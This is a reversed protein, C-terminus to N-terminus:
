PRPFGLQHPSFSPKTQSGLYCLDLLAPLRLVGTRLIALIDHEFASPTGPGDQVGFDHSFYGSLLAFTCLSAGLVAALRLLPWFKAVNATSAPSRHLALFLTTESRFLMEVLIRQCFDIEGLVCFWVTDSGFISACIAACCPISYPPRCLINVRLQSVYSRFYSRIQNLRRHRKEDIEILFNSSPQFQQACQLQGITPV